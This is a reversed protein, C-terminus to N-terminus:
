LDSEELRARGREEILQAASPPLVDKMWAGTCTTGEMDALAVCMFAANEFLDNRYRHQFFTQDRVVYNVRDAFERDRCLANLDFEIRMDSQAADDYIISVDPDNERLIRWSNDRFNALQNLYIARANRYFDIGLRANSDDIASLGAGAVLEDYVGSPPDIPDFVEAFRLDVMEAESPCQGAALKAAIQQARELPERRTEMNQWILAVATRAEELLGHSIREMQKAERRDTAWEQLQFAAVIGLFVLLGEVAVLLWETGTVRGAAEKIRRFVVIM